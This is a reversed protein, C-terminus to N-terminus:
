HDTLPYDRREPLAAEIAEAVEAVPLAHSPPSILVLRTGGVGPNWLGIGPRCAYAELGLDRCFALTPEVPGYPETTVLYQRKRIPSGTGIVPRYWIM